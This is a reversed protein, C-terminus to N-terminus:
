RIPTSRSGADRPPETAMCSCTCSPVSSCILGGFFWKASAWSRRPMQQEGAADADRGDQAHGLPQRGRTRGELHV